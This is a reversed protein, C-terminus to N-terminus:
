RGIISQPCGTQLGQHLQDLLLRRHIRVTHQRCVRWLLQRRDISRLRVMSARLLHSQHDAQTLLQVTSGPHSRPIISTGRAVCFDQLDRWAIMHPSRMPFTSVIKMKRSVDCPSLTADVLPTGWSSPDPNDSAMDSPELGKAFFWAKMGDEETQFTWVGTVASELPTFAAANVGCEDHMLWSHRTLWQVHCDNDICPQM